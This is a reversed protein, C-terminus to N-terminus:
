KKSGHQQKHKVAGIILFIGGLVFMLTYIVSMLNLSLYTIYVGFIILIVGIALSLIFKFPDHYDLKTGDPLKIENLQKVPKLELIKSTEIEPFVPAIHGCHNCKFSPLMGQGTITAAPQMIKHVFTSNCVPCFFIHQVKPTEIKKSVSKKHTTKKIRKKAVM